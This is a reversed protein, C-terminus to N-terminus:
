RKDFAPNACVGFRRSFTKLNRGTGRSFDFSHEKREAIRRGKRQGNGPNVFAYMYEVNVGGGSLVKLVESLAGPKDALEVAVVENVAVIVKEAKLVAKAKECDQVIMRLVGFDQTDAISIARMNIGNESLLAVVDSLAGQKNEVFVSLQKVFM